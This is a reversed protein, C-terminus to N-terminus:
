LTELCCIFCSISCIFKTQIFIYILHFTIDSAYTDAKGKVDSNVTLMLIVGIKKINYTIGAFKYSVIPIIKSICSASVTNRKSGRQLSTDLPLM